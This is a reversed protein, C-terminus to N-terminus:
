KLFELLLRNVHDPREWQPIHGAEPIVEYRSRAIRRHLDQGVPPAFLKDHQGWLILTPQRIEGIRRAYGEEWLSLNRVTTMLPSILGPRQRNRHSREVVLDTLRTEDHVIEKLVRRTVGQGTFWNGLRVLWIPVRSEVARRIMPSTLKELIRDPLGSILVLRDVREPHAVAMAIVLGGGMSNGVLTARRIGLNDMFGVFFQVLDDPTYAISPKDSWGSGLMDLTILRHSGSLPGQQYEWQWLSGGFGHVLIVPPGNGTDLYAVRQGNVEVTKVPMRQISDFWNPIPQRQTSACAAFLLLMAGLLSGFGAVRCVHTPPVNPTSPVVLPRVHPRALAM